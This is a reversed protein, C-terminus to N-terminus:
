RLTCPARTSAPTIDVVDNRYDTLESSLDRMSKKKGKSENKITIFTQAAGQDIGKHKEHKGDDEAMVQM